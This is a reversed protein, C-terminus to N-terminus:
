PQGCLWIGFSGTLKIAEAFPDPHVATPAALWDPHAETIRIGKKMAALVKKLNREDQRSLAAAGLEEIKEEEIPLVVAANVEERQAKNPDNPDYGHRKGYATMERLQKKSLRYCIRHARHKFQAKTLVSTAAANTEAGGGGCGFLLLPVFAALLLYKPRM